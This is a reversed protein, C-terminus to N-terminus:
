EGAGYETLVGVICMVICAQKMDRVLQSSRLQDLNTKWKEWCEKKVTGSVPSSGLMGSFTLRTM